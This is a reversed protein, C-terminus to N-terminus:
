RTALETAPDNLALNWPLLDAIRNVPHDAICTLVARLYAESQFTGIPMSPLRGVSGASQTAHLIVVSCPLSEM